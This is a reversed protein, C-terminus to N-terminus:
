LGARRWVKDRSFKGSEVYDMEEEEEASVDRYVFWYNCWPNGGADFTLDYGPASSSMDIRANHDLPNSKNLGAPVRPDSLATKKNVKESFKLTISIM